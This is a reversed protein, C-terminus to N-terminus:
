ENGEGTTEPSLPRSMAQARRAMLAAYQEKAPERLGSREAQLREPSWLGFRKGQGVFAVEGDIGAYEQLDAPLTVRGDMDPMLEAAQSCLVIALADPEGGFAAMDDQLSQFKDMQEPTVAELWPGSLSPFCIFSKFGDKELAYRFQSPVSVRDKKDIKNVTCSIFGGVGTGERM